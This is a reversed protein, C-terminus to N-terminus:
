CLYSCNVQDQHTSVSLYLQGWTSVSLLLTSRMNVSHLLTSRMNVSNHLTSTINVSDEGQQGAPLRGHGQGPLRLVQHAHGAGVQAQVRGRQGCEWWVQLYQFGSISSPIKGILDNIFFFYLYSIFSKSVAPEASQRTKIRTKINLMNKVYCLFTGSVLLIYNHNSQQKCNWAHFIQQHFCM